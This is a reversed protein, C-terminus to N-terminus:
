CQAICYFRNYVCRAVVVNLTRESRMPDNMQGALVMKRLVREELQLRCRRSSDFFLAGALVKIKSCLKHDEPLFFLCTSDVWCNCVINTQSITYKPFYITCCNVWLIVHELWLTQATRCISMFPCAWLSVFSKNWSELGEEALHAGTPAQRAVRHFM